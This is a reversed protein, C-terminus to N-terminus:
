KADEGWCRPRVDQDTTNDMSMRGCVDGELM